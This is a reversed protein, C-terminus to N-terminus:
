ESASGLSGPRYRSDITPEDSGRRVFSWAPLVAPGHLRNNTWEVDDEEDAGVNARPAELPEEENEVEAAADGHEQSHPPPGARLGMYTRPPPDPLAPLRGLKRMAHRRCAEHNTGIVFFRPGSYDHVLHVLGSGRLIACAGSAYPVKVGLQPLCLNAGIMGLDTM